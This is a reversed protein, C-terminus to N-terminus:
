WMHGIRGGRDRARGATNCTILLDNRGSAGCNTVMWEAFKTKAAAYNVVLPEAVLPEYEEQNPHLPVTGMPEIWGYPHVVDSDWRFTMTWNFFDKM